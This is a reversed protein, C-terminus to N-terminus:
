KVKWGCIVEEKKIKRIFGTHLDKLCFTNDKSRKQSSLLEGTYEHYQPISHNSAYLHRKEYQPNYIRLKLKM